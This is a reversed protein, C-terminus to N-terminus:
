TSIPHAPVAQGTARPILRAADDEGSDLLSPGADFFASNVGSGLNQAPEWGLDDHKNPRWSAWVDQDGFGGPRDSNFFLWHGNRSLAPPGETAATNVVEGLNVPPGWEDDRGPRQSVWIDTGGFGGPRSSTSYLSLGDKSVAPGFDEFPSNITTGLNTPTAWGSFRPCGDPNVDRPLHRPCEDASLAKPINPDRDEGKVSLPFLSEASLDHEAHAPAPASRIKFHCANEM